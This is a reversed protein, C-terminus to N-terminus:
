GNEADLSDNESVILFTQDDRLQGEGRGRALESALEDRLQAASRERSLSGLLWDQLREQSPLVPNAASWAARDTTSAREPADTLGDTYLLVRCPPRLEFVEDVFRTTPLIGLPMGEPSISTVHTSANQVVLVPCHGASAVTMQNKKSNVLAVQATAFMDVASLDQYMHWNIRALLESPKQTWEPLARILSHLIAAFLAAPVGKGMVDAVVLLLSNDSLQLVDFFDGGVERASECFGAVGFDRLQPLSKPLLSRQINRALELDHALLRNRVHEECLRASVIQIALFDAFTQIVKAQPPSFPTTWNKKGATLTGLVEDNAILPQTVGMVSAGVGALPDSPSLPQRPGFLMERRRLAAQVEIPINRGAHSLPMIEPVEVDSSMAFRVLDRGNEPVIRLVYWDAATIHLLDALLQRAFEGLDNSRALQTSCRFIACLSETRFCLERAMDSVVQQTDELRQQLEHLSAAGATHRHEQHCRMKHMILSNQDKGRLYNAVDMFSQIFFLGRGRESELEPLTIEDPWDFGPTHDNVSMEVKSSTCLVTIEVPRSSGEERVNQIANNCAEVLALECASIEEEHLGQETLFRRVARRATPVQELDCALLYRFQACPASQARARSM